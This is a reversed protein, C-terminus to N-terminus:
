GAFCSGLPHVGLLCLSAGLLSRRVTYFVGVNLSSEEYLCVFLMFDYLYMFSGLVIRESWREIKLIKQTKGISWIFKKRRTADCKFLSQSLCVFCVFLHFSINYWFNFLVM